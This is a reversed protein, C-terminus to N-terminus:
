PKVRAVRLVSPARKLIRLVDALHLRDRVSLTLRMEATQGDLQASSIGLADYQQDFWARATQALTAASPATAAADSAQALYAKAQDSLTVNTSASPSADSAEIEDLTQALSPTNSAAAYSNGTAGLYPPQNAAAITTM